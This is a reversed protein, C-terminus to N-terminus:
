QEQRKILAQSREFTERQALSKQASNQLMAEYETVCIKEGNKIRELIGNIDHIDEQLSATAEIRFKEITERQLQVPMADDQAASAQTNDQTFVGAGKFRNPGKFRNQEPRFRNPKGDNMANMSFIQIFILLLFIQKNM